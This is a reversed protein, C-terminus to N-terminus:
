APRLERLNLAVFENALGVVENNNLTGCALMSTNLIQFPRTLRPVGRAIVASPRVLPLPQVLRARHVGRYVVDEPRLDPFLRM